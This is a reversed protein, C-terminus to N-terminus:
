SVPQRLITKLKEPAVKRPDGLYIEHHKGRLTYGKDKAYSHLARITPPEEDYAGIHMIQLAQGEKLVDLRVHDLKALQKKQALKKKAEIVMYNSIFDPMVIMLTWEWKEKHHMSWEKMNKMYWLGELPMVVFDQAQQKSHFKITYALGYLAQVAAEFELNQNPDGKGEVMLYNFTPINVEKVQAAKATYYEKYTKKMDLKSM